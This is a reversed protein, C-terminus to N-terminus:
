NIKLSHCLKPLKESLITSLLDNNTQTSRYLPSDQCKNTADYKNKFSKKTRTDHKNIDKNKNLTTQTEMLDNMMYYILKSQKIQIVNLLPYKKYLNETSSRYDKSFLTKIAKNQLMQSPTTNRGLDLM